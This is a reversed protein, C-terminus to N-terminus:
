IIKAKELAAKIVDFMKKHGKVAPHLGDPLDANDLVHLV